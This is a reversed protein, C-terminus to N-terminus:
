RRRPSVLARYAALLDAVTRDQGFRDVAVRRAAAATAARRGPDDLVAAVASALDAAARTPVLTAGPGLDPLVGVPPGVVPLGSAAAEVAVMSQGEHRSTVLLVAARRYVDALDGRRVHGLVDVRDELGLEAVRGVLDPRLRGDGAIALRVYPRGAALIAFARLALDPDKVPELAGAFLITASGTSGGGTGADALDTATPAFTATDVGLPLLLAPKRGRRARVAELTATSGTTTLDALRLATAATWRGGRGLAAGYGIDQLGVLEGGMVSVVSPRGLLRGAIAAIAGPEDAWLGHVVDIGRRRHEDIATALGAALVRARGAPGRADQLGLARVTTGGLVFTARSAPHRLAVVRLDVSAGLREMLDVVAPMGPADRTTGVGPVVLLVRLPRM